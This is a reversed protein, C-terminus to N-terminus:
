KNAPRGELVKTLRAMLRDENRTQCEWVTIVKWGLKRLARQVNRDRKVNQDFKERWFGRRTRPTSAKSCDRHRHWFCGHVFIAIRRSPFVIDPTGPLQGSHLRFRFGRRHIASRVRLEPSTNKGRVRSMLWSRKPDIREKM